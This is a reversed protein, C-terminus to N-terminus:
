AHLHKLEQEFLNADASQNCLLEMQMQALRDLKRQINRRVARAPPHDPRMQASLQIVREAIEACMLLRDKSFHPCITSRLMRKRERESEKETQPRTAVAFGGGGEWPTITWQHGDKVVVAIGSGSMVQPLERIDVGTANLIAVRNGSVSECGFVDGAAQSVTEIAM